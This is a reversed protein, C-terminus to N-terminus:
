PTPTDEASPKDEASPEPAPALHGALPRMGGALWTSVDFGPCDKAVGPIERHGCVGPALVYRKGDEVKLRPPQTHIGYRQSLLTVLRDLKEWQQPTYRDMGVLCIGLSPANWGEVHAGAEEEHRGNFLAGNRAIVYHYGIAELRSEQRGRWYTDRHFGRAKHWADIEQAPHRFGPTGYRGTFLTRENPTASCHLVILKIARPM